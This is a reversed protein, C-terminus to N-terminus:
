GDDGDEWQADWVGPKGSCTLQPVREWRRVTLGCWSCRWARAAPDQRYWLHPWVYAVPERPEQRDQHSVHPRHIEGALRETLSM